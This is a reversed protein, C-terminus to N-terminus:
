KGIVLVQVTFGALSHSNAVQVGTQETLVISDTGDWYAGALTDGVSPQAVIVNKIEDLQFDAATFADGGTAYTGSYTITAWRVQHSGWVDRDDIVVATTAM